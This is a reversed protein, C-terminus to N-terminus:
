VSITTLCLTVIFDSVRKLNLNEITWKEWIAESKSNVLKSNREQGSDDKEACAALAM